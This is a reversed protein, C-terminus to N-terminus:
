RSSLTAGTVFCKGTCATNARCPSSGHEYITMIPAAPPISVSAKRFANSSQMPVPSSFWDGTSRSALFSFRATQCTFEALHPESFGHRSVASSLFRWKCSSPPQYSFLGCYTASALISVTAMQDYRVHGALTNNPRKDPCCNLHRCYRISKIPMEIRAPWM